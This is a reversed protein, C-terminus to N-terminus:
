GCCTALSRGCMCCAPVCLGGVCRTVVNVRHQQSAALAARQDQAVHWGGFMADLLAQTHAPLGAAARVASSLPVLGPLQRAPSRRRCRTRCKTAANTPLRQCCYQGCSCAACSLQCRCTHETPPSAAAGATRCHLGDGAGGLRGAAWGGLRGAAWGGLRRASRAPAEELIKCVCMGIKKDAFHQVVQQAVRRSGVVLCSPSHAVEQLVANAAALLSDDAVAAVNCIRGFFGGPVQGESSLQALQAVAEDYRSWRHQGASGSSAAGAQAEALQAELAQTAVQEHPPLRCCGDAAAARLRSHGRPMQLCRAALCAAPQNIGPVRQNRLRSVTQDIYEQQMRELQEELQQREGQKAALQAQQREGAARQEALQEQLRKLDQGAGALQQRLRERAASQKGQQQRIAEVAAQLLLLM